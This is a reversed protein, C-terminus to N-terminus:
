RNRDDDDLQVDPSLGLKHFFDSECTLTVFQKRDSTEFPKVIIRGDQTWYSFIDGRKRYVNLKRILNFRSRTLNESIFTKDPHDKLKRKNSYVLHRKRYSIFRAIISAKGNQIKGITHTRGIDELTIPQELKETCINLVLTDTDVPFVIKGSDDTPLKVNNFRLSTRRSYQQQEELDKEMSLVRTKLNEITQEQKEIIQVYPEITKHCVAQITKSMTVAVQQSLISTLKSVFSQESLIEAVAKTLDGVTLNDLPTNNNFVEPDILPTHEVTKLYTLEEFTDGSIQKQRTQRQSQKFHLPTEDSDSPFNRKGPVVPAVPNKAAM